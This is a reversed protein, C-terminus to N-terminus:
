DSDSDSDDIKQMEINIRLNETKFHRNQKDENMWRIQKRLEKNMTEVCENLTISVFDNKIDKM